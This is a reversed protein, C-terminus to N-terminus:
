NSFVKEFEKPLIAELSLTNWNMDVFSYRSCHLMQRSIKLQKYLKRNAAPNGYIIDWLIPLNESALHVRIQHMRWTYLKVRVLSVEWLIANNKSRQNRIETKAEQWNESVKM